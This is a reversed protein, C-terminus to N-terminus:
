HAERKKKLTRELTSLVEQKTKGYGMAASKVLFGVLEKEESEYPSSKTWAESKWFDQREFFFSSCTRTAMNNGLTGDRVAKIALSM